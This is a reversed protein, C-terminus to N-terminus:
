KDDDDENELGAGFPDSTGHPGANFAERLHIRNSRGRTRRRPREPEQQPTGTNLTQQREIVATCWDTLDLAPQDAPIGRYTRAIGVLEILNRALLGLEDHTLEDLIDAADDPSEKQLRVITAADALNITVPM